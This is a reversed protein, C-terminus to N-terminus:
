SIFQIRDYVSVTEYILKMTTLIKDHADPTDTDRTSTFPIIQYHCQCHSMLYNVFHVHLLISITQLNYSM